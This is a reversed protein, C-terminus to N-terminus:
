TSDEKRDYIDELLAVCHRCGGTVTAPGGLDSGYVAGDCSQVHGNWDKRARLVVTVDSIDALHQRVADDGILDVVGPAWVRYATQSM